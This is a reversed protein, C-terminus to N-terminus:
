RLAAQRGDCNCSNNESHESWNILELKQYNECDVHKSKANLVNYTRNQVNEAFNITVNDFALATGAGGFHAMQTKRFYQLM